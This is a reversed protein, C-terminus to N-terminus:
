CEKSLIKIYDMEGGEGNNEMSKINRFVKQLYTGKTALQIKLQLPWLVSPTRPIHLVM